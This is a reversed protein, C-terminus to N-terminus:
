LEILSISEHVLLLTCDLLKGGANEYGLDNENRGSWKMFFAGEAGGSV